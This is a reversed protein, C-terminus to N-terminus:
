VGDLEAQIEPLSTAMKRVVLLAKYHLHSFIRHWLENPNVIDHVITSDSHVKCKYLGQEEVGIVVVDDVTKGRPWMHVQGDIFAVRFGKKDLTSISLLNKKFGLVYIVEKMNMSKGLSTPIKELVKSQINITMV